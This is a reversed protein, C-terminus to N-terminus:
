KVLLRAVDETYHWGEPLRNKRHYYDVLRRIKSVTLEYGRKATFDHSHEKLHNLQVVSRKILALLDEPFEEKSGAEELIERVTKGTLQHLDPIGYQDRLILGISSKTQGESALKKVLEAAEQASYEVWEPVETKKDEM